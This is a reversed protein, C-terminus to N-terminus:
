ETRPVCNVPNRENSWELMLNWLTQAANPHEARKQMEKPEEVFAPVSLAFLNAAM